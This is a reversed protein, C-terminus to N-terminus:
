SNETKINFIGADTLAQQIRKRWLPLSFSRCVMEYGRMALAEARKLDNSLGSVAAVLDPVVPRVMIGNYDPIVINCLGGVDTSVVACGSAMAELCALSTGESYTSPIVAIHSRNMLDYIKEHPVTEMSIRPNDQVLTRIHGEFSGAGAFTIRISPNSALIGELAELFLIVGRRLEFRRAFVVHITQPDTWKQKWRATEQPVAFNPIYRIKLPDFRSGLVIRSFNLFNTDVTITLRAERCMKVDHRQLRRRIFEWKLSLYLNKQPMTYDWHIGHQIFIQGPKRFKEGVFSSAYIICRIGRREADKHCLRNMRHRDSGGIGVIEIGELIRHFDERSPQYIVPTLGQDALLRALEGIWTEVGGVTIDLPQKWDLFANTVIAIEQKMM